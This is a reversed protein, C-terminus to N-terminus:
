VWKSDRTTADLIDVDLALRFHEAVRFADELEETQYFTIYKNGSYFLNLQIVDNKFTGITAGYSNVSVAEKTKFVSVYEFKPIPKWRGWRMGLISTILRYTKDELHIEAGSTAAFNIGLAIFVVGLLLSNYMLIKVGAVLLVVALVKKMFLVTRVYVITM